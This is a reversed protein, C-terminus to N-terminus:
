KLPKGLLFRGLRKLIWWPGILLYVPNKFFSPPNGEFFHGVFQFIWGLIFLVAAWKGNWFFLPLSVVIMPIGIAHTLKNVPHQHDRNYRELVSIKDAM